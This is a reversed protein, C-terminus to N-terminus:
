NIFSWLVFIMRKSMNSSSLFQECLRCLVQSGKCTVCFYESKSNYPKLEGHKPSKCKKCYFENQSIQESLKTEIKARDGAKTIHSELNNCKKLHHKEYYGDKELATAYIQADEESIECDKILWFKINSHQQQQAAM